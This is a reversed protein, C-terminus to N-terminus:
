TLIYVISLLIHVGRMLGVTPQKNLFDFPRDNQTAQEAKKYNQETM